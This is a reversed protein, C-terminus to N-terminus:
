WVKTKTRRNRFINQNSKKNCWNFYRKKFVEIKMWRKQKKNFYSNPIKSNFGPINKNDETKKNKAKVSVRRTTKM